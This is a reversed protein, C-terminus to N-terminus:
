RCKGNLFERVIHAFREPQTVMGLHGTGDMLVYKSGPILDRFRQTVPVPVVTDLRAEGTVILTPATVRACDEAFDMEQEQRVRGAMLVPNMPAALVRMGHVISFAMRQRWTPFASYIEPWTRMPGTTLFAPLSRLPHAIYRMQRESPKWGPAPSSVLILASVRDPRTAAYRLAVFGGYSVGCVAAKNLGTRDFVEDLQQLYSDFGIAPDLRAGSGIDGCLSYSIARDGRSLADLAPRMWEWRGQVGPVVIVAEGQGRDYM